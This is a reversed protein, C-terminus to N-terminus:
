DYKPAQVTGAYQMRIESFHADQEANLLGRKVLELIALFGVVIEHRDEPTGVFDKFTLSLASEIRDALRVMMEELSIVSKVETERLATTQPAQALVNKISQALAEVTMDRSPAFIPERDRKLGGFFLPRGLFTGIRKAIGRYVQYLALRRELDKIDGAEDETLSFVPLLAKSKLLLLTAATLIFHAATGTPFATQARVFAIFEDAIKALSIDSVHMKREEVLTLILDFPGEVGGVKVTFASDVTAFIGHISARNQFSYQQTKDNLWVFSM